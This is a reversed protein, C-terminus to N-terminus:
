ATREAPAPAGLDVRWVIDSLAVTQERLRHCYFLFPAPGLPDLRSERRLRAGVWAEMAEELAAPTDAHRMLLKAVAEDGLAAGLAGAV